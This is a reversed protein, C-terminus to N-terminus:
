KELVTWLPSFRSIDVIGWILCINDFIARGSMQIFLIAQETVKGLWFLVFGGPALDTTKMRLCAPWSLMGERLSDPLVDCLGQGLM